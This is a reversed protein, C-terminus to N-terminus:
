IETNPTAKRYEPLKHNKKITSIGGQSRWRLTPYNIYTIEKFLHGSHLFGLRSDNIVSQQYYSENVTNVFVMIGSKKIGKGM